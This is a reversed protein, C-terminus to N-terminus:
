IAEVKHLYLLQIVPHFIHQYAVAFKLLSVNLRHKPHHDIAVKNTSKLELIKKLEDSNNTGESKIELCNTEFM